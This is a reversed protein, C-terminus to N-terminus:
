RKQREAIMEDITLKQRLLDEVNDPVVTSGSAAAAPSDYAASITSKAISTGATLTENLTMIHKGGANESKAVPEDVESSEDDAYISTVDIGVSRMFSNTGKPGIEADLRRVMLDIVDAHDKEVNAVGQSKLFRLENLAAGVESGTVHSRSNLAKETEDIKELRIQEASKKFGYFKGDNGRMNAAHIAMLEDISKKIPKRDGCEVISIEESDDTVIKNDESEADYDESGKVAEAIEGLTEGLIKKVKDEIKDECPCEPESEAIADGGNEAMNQEGASLGGEAPVEGVPAKEFEETECSKKVPKDDEKKPEDEKEEEEAPAKEETGEDASGEPTDPLEDVMANEPPASVSAGEVPEGEGEGPVLVGALPDINEEELPADALPADLPAEEPLPALDDAGGETGPLLGLEDTGETASGGSDLHDAAVRLIEAKFSKDKVERAGDLVSNVDDTVTDEEMGMM